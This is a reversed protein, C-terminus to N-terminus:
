TAMTAVQIREAGGHPFGLAKKKDGLWWGLLVQALLFRRGHDYLTALMDRGEQWDAAPIPKPSITPKKPM